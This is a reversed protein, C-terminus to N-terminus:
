TSIHIAKLEVPTGARLSNPIEAIPDVHGVLERLKEPSANGSIEVEYGVATSAADAVARRSLGISSWRLPVPLV